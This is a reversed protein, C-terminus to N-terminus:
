STEDPLPEDRGQESPAEPLLALVDARAVTIAYHWPGYIPSGSSSYDILARAKSEAFDIEAPHSAPCSRLFDPDAAAVGPVSRRRWTITKLMKRVLLPSGFHELLLEAAERLLIQEMSTRDGATAM